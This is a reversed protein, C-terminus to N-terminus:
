SHDRGAFFAPSSKTLPAMVGGVAIFRRYRGHSRPCTKSRTARVRQFPLADSKLGKELLRASRAWRTERLRGCRLRPNVISLFRNMKPGRVFDFALERGACDNGFWRECLCFRPASKWSEGLREGSIRKSRSSATRPFDEDASSVRGGQVRKYNLLRNNRANVDRRLKKATSSGRSSISSSV